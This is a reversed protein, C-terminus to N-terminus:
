SEGGLERTVAENQNQKRKLDLKINRIKLRRVKNRERERGREKEKRRLSPRVTYRQSAQPDCLDGQRGLELILPMQFM